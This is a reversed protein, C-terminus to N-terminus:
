KHAVIVEPAYPKAYLADVLAARRKLVAKQNISGKDTIESADISPPEGLVILRCIRNASGTSQQALRDFVTQFHRRVLPHAVVEALPADPPVEPCLTRCAPANPFVLATLEDRNVDALVVDQVYPAGATIAKARLPGVNVWTGSSLKFDEAIRGDFFLGLEPRAPDLWKVGDGMRYYGEEDFADRTLEPERWYGPTISPGKVRIELKDEVPALKVEVGSVPIGIYGSRVGDWTTFTVSPATETAGLGTVWLIRSGVTKVALEDYADWVHQPMAAGAFFLVQLRSFFKERLDPERKLAEALLEHGRPVNFQITPAIERLADLTRDFLGPAPRGDDIYLTGGGMIVYGFNHNGGFVHNWPLWDVIVPPEAGLLPMAQIGMQLNCCIMRHTTIVGKPRGTSGSTFLFKAIDDPKVAAHARDVAATAPTAALRAFTTCAYGSVPAETVAVEVTSPVAARIAKEYRAGNAAFVLGPTLKELIFRLKAHDTSVLSYATSITSFPVGVTMAAIKLLAHEVDNESLIALPREASLKRDLLAQGLRRALDYGQAYTVRRWGGSDDRQAVWTRDPAVAAWHAFRDALREPHPQLPHPNRLIQAGDARQTVSVDRPGLLAAGRVAAKKAEAIASM